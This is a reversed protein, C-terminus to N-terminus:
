TLAHFQIGPQHSAPSASAPSPGGTIPVLVASHEGTPSGVALSPLLPSRPALAHCSCSVSTCPDQWLGQVSPGRTQLGTIPFFWRSYTTLTPLGPDAGEGQLITLFCHPTGPPLVAILGGCPILPPLSLTGWVGLVTDGSAWSLPGM